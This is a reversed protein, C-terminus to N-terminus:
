FHTDRRWLGRNVCNSQESSFRGAKPVRFDNKGKGEEVQEESCRSLNRRRGMKNNKEWIGIFTTLPEGRVGSKFEKILSVM